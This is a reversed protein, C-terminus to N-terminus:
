FATTWFMGGTPNRKIGANLYPNLNSLVSQVVAEHTCKHLYGLLM